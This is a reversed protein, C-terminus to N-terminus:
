LYGLWGLVHFSGDGYFFSVLFKGVHPPNHPSLSSFSYGSVSLPVCLDRPPRHYEVPVGAFDVTSPGFLKKSRRFIRLILSEHDRTSFLPPITKPVTTPKKRTCTMRSAYRLWSARRQLKSHMKKFISPTARHRLAQVGPYRTVLSTSGTLESLFAWMM